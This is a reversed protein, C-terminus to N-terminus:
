FQPNLLAHLSVFIGPFSLQPVDWLANGFLYQGRSHVTDSVRKLFSFLSQAFLVGVNGDIDYVPPHASTRLSSERLNVLGCAGFGMTSDIYQGGLTVGNAVSAHYATAVSELEATARSTSDGLTSPNLDAYLLAGENWEAHEVQFVWQGNSDVVANEAIMKCLRRCDNGDGSCHTYKEPHAVCDLVTQNINPWTALMGKPVVRLSCRGVLVLLYKGCAVMSNTMSAGARSVHGTCFIHSLIHISEWVAGFLSRVSLMTELAEVSCREDFRQAQCVNKGM